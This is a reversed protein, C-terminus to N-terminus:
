VAYCDGASRVHRTAGHYSITPKSLAGEQIESFPIRGHQKPLLHHRVPIDAVRQRHSLIIDTSPADRRHYENEPLPTTKWLDVVEKRQEGTGQMEVIVQNYKYM